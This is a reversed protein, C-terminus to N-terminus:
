CISPDAAMARALGVRQQSGFAACSLAAPVRQSAPRDFELLEDIRRYIRAQGWGLLNPVTAINEAVTMHPFLGTSQIVYGIRRRLDTM